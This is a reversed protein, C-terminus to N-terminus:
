FFERLCVTREPFVATLPELLSETRLKFEGVREATAPDYRGV